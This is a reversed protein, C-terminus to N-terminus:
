GQTPTKGDTVNILAYHPKSKEKTAVVKTRITLSGGGKDVGGSKNVDFPWDSQDGPADADPQILSAVAPGTAPNGYPDTLTNFDSLKPTKGKFDHKVDSYGLV